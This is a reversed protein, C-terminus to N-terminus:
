EGRHYIEGYSGREHGDRDSMYTVCVWLISGCVANFVDDVKQIIDVVDDEHGVLGVDGGVTGECEGM